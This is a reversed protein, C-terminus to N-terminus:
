RHRRRITVVAVTSASQNAAPALGKVVVRDVSGANALLAPGM